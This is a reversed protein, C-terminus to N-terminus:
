PHLSRLLAQQAHNPRPPGSTGNRCPGQRNCKAHRHLLCLMVCDAEASDLENDSTQYSISVFATVLYCHERQTVRGPEGARRAM